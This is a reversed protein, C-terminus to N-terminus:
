QDERRRAPRVFDDDGFIRQYDAGYLHPPKKPVILAMIFYGPLLVASLPTFIVLVIFGLRFWITDVAFYDGLGSCVGLFKGNIKDRYLKRVEKTM